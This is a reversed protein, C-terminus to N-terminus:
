FPFYEADDEPIEDSFEDAMGDGKPIEETEEAQDLEIRKEEYMANSPNALHELLLGLYYFNERNLGINFVRDWKDNEKRSLSVAYGVSGDKKEYKEFTLVKNKRVVKTNKGDGKAIAQIRRGTIYAEPLSLSIYFTEVGETFRRM